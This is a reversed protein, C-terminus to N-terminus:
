QKLLCSLYMKTIKFVQDDGKWTELDLFTYVYILFKLFNMEKPKSVKGHDKSLVNQM